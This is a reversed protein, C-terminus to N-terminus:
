LDTNPRIIRNRKVGVSDQSSVTVYFDKTATKLVGEELLWLQTKKAAALNEAVLPAGQFMLAYTMLFQIAILIVM